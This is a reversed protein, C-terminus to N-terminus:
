KSSSLRLVLKRVDEMTFGHQRSLRGLREDAPTGPPLNLGTIVADVSVGAAAAVEALTMSGRISQGGEGAPAQGAPAEEYGPVSEVQSGWRGGGEGKGAGRGQEEVGILWPAAILAVTFIGLVVLLLSGRLGAGPQKRAQTSLLVGFMCTVWNWHLIVHIAVLAILGAAVYFHLTGWEHRTWGLATDQGRGPPLIYFMLLGTSALGAMALYALIDVLLNLRSKSM